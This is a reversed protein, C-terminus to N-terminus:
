FPSSFILLEWAKQAMYFLGPKSSLLLCNSIHYWNSINTPKGPPETTIFRGALAPSVPEIGRTQFIGQLLVHCSVGTNKGPFSWPCLLRAATWPTVFFRVWSLVCVFVISSLLYGYSYVNFSHLGFAGLLMKHLYGSLFM